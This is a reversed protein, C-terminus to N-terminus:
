VRGSYAAQQRPHADDDDLLELLADHQLVGALRVCRLAGSTVRGASGVGDEFTDVAIPPIYLEDM